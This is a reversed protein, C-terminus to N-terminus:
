KKVQQVSDVFKKWVADDAATGKGAPKYNILLAITDTNPPAFYLMYVRQGGSTLTVRAAPFAGIPRPDVVVDKAGIARYAAPWQNQPGVENVFQRKVPDYETTMSPRCWFVGHRIADFNPERPNALLRNLDDDTGWFCGLSPAVARSAYDSPIAMAIPFPVVYQCAGQDFRITRYGGAAQAKSAGISALDSADCPPSPFAMLKPDPQGMVINELHSKRGDNSESRIVLDKLDTARWVISSVTTTKGSQTFSITVKVKQTPHRDVTEAGLPEERRNVPVSGPSAATSYHICPSQATWLWTTQLAEDRYSGGKGDEDIRKWRTGDSYVRARTTKGQFTEIEVASFPPDPKPTDSAVIASLLFWVAISM